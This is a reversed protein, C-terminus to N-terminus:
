ERVWLDVFRQLRVDRRRQAVHRCRRARVCRATDNGNTSRLQLLHHASGRHGALGRRTIARQLGRYKGRHEGDRPHIHEADSITEGTRTARVAGVLNLASRAVGVQGDAIRLDHLPDVELVRHEVLAPARDEGTWEVPVVEPLSKAVDALGRILSVGDDLEVLVSLAPHCALAGEVHPHGADRYRGCRISEPGIMAEGVPLITEGVVWLEPDLGVTVKLGNVTETIVARSVKA